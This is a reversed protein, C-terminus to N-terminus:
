IGRHPLQGSGADVFFGKEDWPFGPRATQYILSEPQGPDQLLTVVEEYGFLDGQFRPGGTNEAVPMGDDLYERFAHQGPPANSCSQLPLILILFLLFGRPAPLAIHRPRRM